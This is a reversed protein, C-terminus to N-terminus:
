GLEPETRYANVSLNIVLNRITEDDHYLMSKTTPELGRAYWAKYEELLKELEPNDLHFHELEEFIYDAM